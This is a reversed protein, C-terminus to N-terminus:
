LNKAAAKDSSKGTAAKKQAKMALAFFWRGAVKKAAPDHDEYAFGMANSMEQCLDAVDEWQEPTLGRRSGVRQARVSDPSPTEDSMPRGERRIRDALKANM